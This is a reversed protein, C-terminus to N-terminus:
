DYGTAQRQIFGRGEWYRAMGRYKMVQQHDELEMDLARMHDERYVEDFAPGKLRYAEVLFRHREKQPDNVV